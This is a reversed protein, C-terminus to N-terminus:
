SVAAEEVVFINSALRSSLALALNKSANVECRRARRQAARFDFKMSTTLPLGDATEV